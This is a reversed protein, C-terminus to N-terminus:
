AETPYEYVYRGPLYVPKQLGIATGRLVMEPADTFNVPFDPKKNLQMRDIMERCGYIVGNGDNGIILTTNKVTTIFFGEKKLGTPHNIKLKKLVKVLGPDNIELIIIQKGRNNIGKLGTPSVKHGAANLAKTLMGAAYEVRNTANGSTQIIFNEASINWVSLSIFFIFFYRLLFRNHM